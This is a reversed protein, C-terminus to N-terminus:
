LPLPLDGKGRGEDRRSRNLRSSPVALPWRSCLRAEPPRLRQQGRYCKGGHRKDRGGGGERGKKGNRHGGGPVAPPLLKTILSRNHATLFRPRTERKRCHGTGGGRRQDAFLHCPAADLTPSGARFRMSLSPSNRPGSISSLM